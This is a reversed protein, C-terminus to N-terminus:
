QVMTYFISVKNTGFFQKTAPISAIKEVYVHTLSPNDYLIM